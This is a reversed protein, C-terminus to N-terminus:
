RRFRPSDRAAAQEHTLASPKEALAAEGVAVYEAFAGFRGFATQMGFVPTGAALRPSGGAAQVVVGSFDSGLM